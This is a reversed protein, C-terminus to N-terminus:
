PVHLWLWHKARHALAHDRIILFVGVMEDRLTLTALFGNVQVTNAVVLYMRNERIGLQRLIEGRDLSDERVRGHLFEHCPYLVLM